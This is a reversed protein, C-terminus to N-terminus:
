DPASSLVGRLVGETQVARVAAVIEDSGTVQMDAALAHPLMWEACDDVSGFVKHPYNLRSLIQFSTLVGRILAARFGTAEFVATVCAYYPSVRPVMADLAARVEGDPLPLHEDLLTIELLRRPGLRRGHAELHRGLTHAGAVTPTRHGFVHFAVSRWRAFMCADDVHDFVPVDTVRAGYATGM